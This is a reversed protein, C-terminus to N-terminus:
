MSTNGGETSQPADTTAGAMAENREGGCCTGAEGKSESGCSGCKYTKEDMFKEQRAKGSLWIDL